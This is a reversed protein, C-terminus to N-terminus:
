MYEISFVRKWPVNYFSRRASWSSASDRYDTLKCPMLTQTFLLVVSKIERLPLQSRSGLVKTNGVSFATRKGHRSPSDLLWPNRSCLSYNGEFTSKETYKLCMFQKQTSVNDTFTSMLISFLHFTNYRHSSAHLM